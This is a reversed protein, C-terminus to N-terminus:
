DAPTMPAPPLVSLATGGSWVVAEVCTQAGAGGCWGGDRGILLLPRDRWRTVEWDEAQFATVEGSVVTWLSCGGSGCYPSPQGACSLLAGDIVTDPPDMGDLDVEMVAGTAEFRGGLQTCFAAAEAVIDEAAQDAAAAHTGALLALAWIFRM